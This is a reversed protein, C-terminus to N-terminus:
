RDGSEFPPPTDKEEDLASNYKLIKGYWKRIDERLEEDKISNASLRVRGLLCCQKYYDARLASERNKLRIYESKRYSLSSNLCSIQVALAFNIIVSVTLAIIILIKMRGDIGRIGM